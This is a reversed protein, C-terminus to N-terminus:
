KSLNIIKNRALKRFKNLTNIFDNYDSVIKEFHSLYIQIKGEDKLHILKHVNKDVYLLNDYSNDGGNEKPKIHHIEGDTVFLKSIACTLQQASIKSISNDLFEVDDYKNRIRWREKLAGELVLKKYGSKNRGEETYVNMDQSFNMPKRHSIYVMPILVVKGIKYTTYNNRKLYTDTIYKSCSQKFKGRKAIPNLKNEILYSLEYAIDGFDHNIMTATCYYQHLGMIQSNIQNIKKIANEGNKDISIISRKLMEKARQKSKDSMPETLNFAYISAIEDKSDELTDEFCDPDSSIYLCDLIDGYSAHYFYAHYVLIGYEEELKKIREEWEPHNSMWYLIGDFVKTTRESYYLKGTDAFEKQVNELLGFNKLCQCAIEKQQQKTREVDNGNTKNLEGM